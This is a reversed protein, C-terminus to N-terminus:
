ARQRSLRPRAAARRGERRRADGRIARVTGLWSIACDPRTAHSREDLQAPDRLPEPGDLHQGVDIESQVGPAHMREGALVAGALARQDLDQAADMLGVAAADQDVARLDRDAAGGVGLAVADRHDVLM